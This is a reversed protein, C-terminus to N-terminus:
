EPSVEQTLVNEFTLIDAELETLSIIARALINAEAESLERKYSLNEFYTIQKKHHEIWDREKM